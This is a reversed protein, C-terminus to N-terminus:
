PLRSVLSQSVERRKRELADSPLVEYPAQAPGVDKLPDPLQELQRAAYSRIESLSPSADPLRRGNRMVPQLLPQGELHEDHCGIVDRIMCGECVERFVQKRGPFLIKGSSLKMRPRGAYEILKYAMDLSSADESVALRTGVGFGDLPAQNRVLDRIAFEDLGSSAFIRVQTLGAEDLLQRCRQALEALDGSDLRIASVSFEKGMREQLEIVKRVGQLTDYTDVLLTTQPYLRAFAELAAGEDDHAQIYSHAMTGFTPIGHQKGALVNSTGAAGAMYSARAVKLAADTGYARRSGFDVVTRGSAAAVVRSAKTAMISQFHIQNLVFTEVLQAESIPAVIRLLPENAFVITGEPVAHVDGSFRMQELRDLFAECYAGQRRLYHIDSPSFHFSELYALADELGAAVVYKRSAPMSRFFLEFAAPERMEEADYAQAMSLQYLDTFLASRLPDDREHPTM